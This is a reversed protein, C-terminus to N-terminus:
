LMELWEFGHTWNMVYNYDKLGISSKAYVKAQQTEEVLM